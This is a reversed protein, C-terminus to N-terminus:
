YTDPVEEIGEVLLDALRLSTPFLAILMYVMARLIKTLRNKASTINGQFARWRELSRFRTIFRTTKPRTMYASIRLHHVFPHYFM